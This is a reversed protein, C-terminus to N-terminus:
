CLLLPSSFCHTRAFRESPIPPFSKWSLTPSAIAREGDKPAELVWSLLDGHAAQASGM